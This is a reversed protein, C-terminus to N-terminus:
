GHPKDDGHKFSSACRLIGGASYAVGGCDSACWGHATGTRDREGLTGHKEMNKRDWGVVARGRDTKRDWAVLNSICNNAKELGKRRRTQREHAAQM